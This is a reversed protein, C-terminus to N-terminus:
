VGRATAVGNLLLAGLCALPLLHGAKYRLIGFGELHGFQLFSLFVLETHGRLVPISWRLRQFCLCSGKSLVRVTLPIM